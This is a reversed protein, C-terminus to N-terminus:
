PSSLLSTSFFFLILDVAEAVMIRRNAVCACVRMCVFVRMCVCVCVLEVSFVGVTAREKKRESAIKGGSERKEGAREGRGRRTSQLM